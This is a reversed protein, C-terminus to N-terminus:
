ARVTVHKIESEDYAPASIGREVGEAVQQKYENRPANIKILLQEREVENLLAYDEASITMLIVDGARIRGDGTGHIGKGDANVIHFFKNLYRNIDADRERVFVYGDGPKVYKDILRQLNDNLEGRILLQSLRRKKEDRSLEVAEEPTKDPREALTPTNPKEDNKPM